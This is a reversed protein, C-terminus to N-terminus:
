ASAPVARPGALAMRVDAALPLPGSLLAVIEPAPVPRSFYFGQMVPCGMGLLLRAQALTEVGEAVLELKLSNGLSIIAATIAADDANDTMDQVFSRDIKLQDIPFRRLYSLSSYGTGFDDISLRVGLERLQSLTRMTVDVDTMMISETAEIQLSHPDIAHRALVAKVQQALQPKRFSPSALNVAMSIPPVGAARWEALQACARELVWDGIDSILGMEEALGIFRGPAMLGWAPHLWRILAEVGTIRGSSVDVKPQYHLVFQNRELAKRLENELSLKAVATDNMENAYFQYSNRGLEKARYMATDAHKLLVHSHDGDVPFVAIGVSATVVLETGDFLFPRSMEHLIRMAVRAADQPSRLDVLTATFEDGGLRALTSGPQTPDRSLYDGDRVCRSMRRAAEMLLADGAAHGLTDNIRKFRDLDIFLTALHENKRRARAIAHDLQDHFSKRNPLGTLSDYLALRRIEEEAERRSTVDQVTGHLHVLQGRANSRSSAHLQIIRPTGDLCVISHEDSFSASSDNSATSRTFERVKSRLAHRQDPDLVRLFTRLSPARETPRTGLIRYMEDSWQGNRKEVDWHWNGLQALHQAEALSSRSQVLQQVKEELGQRQTSVESKYRELHRHMGALSHLLNGVDRQGVFERDEVPRGDAIRNAVSVALNLPSSLDRIMRLIFWLTVAILLLSVAGVLKTDRNSDEISERIARDLERQYRAEAKIVAQRYANIKDNQRELSPLRPDLELADAMSRMGAAAEALHADSTDRGLTSLSDRSQRLAILAPKSLRLTDVADAAGNAFKVYQDRADVAVGHLRFLAELQANRQADVIAQYAVIGVLPLLIAAFQVVILRKLSQVKIM